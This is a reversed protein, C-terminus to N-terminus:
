QTLADYLTIFAKIEPMHKEDVDHTTVEYCCVDDIGHRQEILTWVKSLAESAEVCHHSHQVAVLDLGDIVNTIADSQTFAEWHRVPEQSGWGYPTVTRYVAVDIALDPAVNEFDTMADITVVIAHGDKYLTMANCGGGTGENKFQMQELIRRLNM